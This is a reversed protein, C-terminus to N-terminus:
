PGWVYLGSAISLSGHRGDWGDWVNHVEALDSPYPAARSVKICGISEYDFDGEWCYPDDPASTCYQGQSATEESHIFLETRLTGTGGNCQMDQVHWVRGKITYDYNNFHGTLTYWGAPLWGHDKACEDHSGDGSGARWNATYVIRGDSADTVTEKLNSNTTQYRYFSFHTFNSGLAPSAGAAGIIATVLAVSSWLSSKRLVKM